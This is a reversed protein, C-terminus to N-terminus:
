WAGAYILENIEIIIVTPINPLLKNVNVTQEHTKELRPEQPKIFYVEKWERNEKNIRCKNKEQTLM